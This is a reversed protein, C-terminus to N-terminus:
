QHRRRYVFAFWVSFTILLLLCIISGEFGFAGGTLMEPGELNQQLLSEIQLGSVEYGLVPGQLYNWAFHFLICFWLNRTYMYNLGLFAGAALVNLVPLINAGPNQSHALAFLVASISLAIWKNFSHLVNSLIYARFIIEEIFAVGILFPITILIEPQFKIQIFSLYGAFFLVLTGIGLISVATFLGLWADNVFGKLQFGLSFFSQQDVFKRFLITLLLVAAVLLVYNPITLALVTVVVLYIFARLWGFPILPRSNM